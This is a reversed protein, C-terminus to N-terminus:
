VLSFVFIFICTYIINCECWYIIVLIVYVHVKYSVIGGDVNPIDEPLWPVSIISHNHLKGVFCFPLPPFLPPFLPFLVSPFNIASLMEVIWIFFYVPIFFLCVIGHLFLIHLHLNLFWLIVTDPFFFVVVVICIIKLICLYFLHQETGCGWLDWLM